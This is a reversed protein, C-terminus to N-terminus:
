SQHGEAMWYQYPICHVLLNQLVLNIVFLNLAPPFILKNSIADCIQGTTVKKFPLM